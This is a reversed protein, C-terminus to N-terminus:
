VCRLRTADRSEYMDSTDNHKADVHEIYGTLESNNDNCNAHSLIVPSSSKCQILLLSQELM